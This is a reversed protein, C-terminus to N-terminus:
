GPHSQVARRGPAELLFLMEAEVGGDWPDFYPIQAGPGAEARLEDVFKTLPAVHTELLQNLRDALAQFNGLLKPADVFM